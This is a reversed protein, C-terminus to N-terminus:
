QLVKTCRKRASYDTCVPTHHVCVRNHLPLVVCQKPEGVNVEGRWSLQEESYAHDLWETFRASSGLAM